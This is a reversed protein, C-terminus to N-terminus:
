LSTKNKIKVKLEMHCFTLNECCLFDSTMMNVKMGVDLKKKAIVARM